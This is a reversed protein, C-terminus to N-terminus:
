RPLPKPSQFVTFGALSLEKGVPRVKSCAPSIAPRTSFATCTQACAQTCCCRPNQGALLPPLARTFPRLNCYAVSSRRRFYPAKAERRRRQRCSECPSVDSSCSPTVRSGLKSAPGTATGVAKRQRPQTKVHAHPLGAGGRAQLVQCM